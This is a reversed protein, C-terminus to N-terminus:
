WARRRPKRTGQPETSRGRSSCGAWASQRWRGDFSGHTWTTTSSATGRGSCRRTRWGQVCFVVDSLNGMHLNFIFKGPITRLMEIQDPEDLTNSLGNPYVVDTDLGEPELWVVHTRDPFRKVKMELSPCYRPGVGEGM